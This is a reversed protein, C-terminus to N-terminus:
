TTLEKIKRLEEIEERSTCTVIKFTSVLPKGDIGSIEHQSKEVYGRSKAKTKLYFLISIIDGKEINEFLKSEVFDIAMENVDNAATAFDPDDNVYRYFTSRDSGVVKCARSVIGHSAELAIVLEKKIHQLQRKRM